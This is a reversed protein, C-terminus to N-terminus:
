WLVTPTYDEGIFVNFLTQFETVSFMAGVHLSALVGYRDVVASVPIAYLDFYKSVNAGSTYDNLMQFAFGNNNKYTNIDNQTNENSFALIEMKDSYKIEKEENYFGNYTLDMFPFERKCPSCRLAWFNIFVMEKEELLKSLSTQIGSANTFSFDYMVDGLSYVTGAPAVEKIVGTPTLPIEALDGDVTEIQLDANAAPQYGKPLNKLVIKYARTNPSLHNNTFVAYGEANIPQSLIEVDNDFLQVIVGSVSRGNLAWVKVRCTFNTIETQSSSDTLSSDSSSNEEASLSSHIPSSSYSDAYSDSSTSSFDSSNGGNQVPEATCASVGFALPLCLCFALIKKYKEKM